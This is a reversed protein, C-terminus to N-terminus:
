LNIGEDIMQWDEVTLDFQVYGYETIPQNDDFDWDPFGPATLTNLALRFYQNRLVNYRFIEDRVVGNHNLYVNYYGAGAIYQRQRYPVEDVTLEVGGVTVGGNRVDDYFQQAIADSSFYYVTGNNVSVTWFDPAGPGPSGAAPNPQAEWVNNNFVAYDQPQFYALLTVCTANNTLAGPAYLFTNETTYQFLTINDRDPNVQIFPQDNYAPYLTNLAYNPDQFDPRQVYYFWNNIRRWAFEVSTELFNGQGQFVTNNYYVASKATLRRLSAPVPTANAQEPTPMIQAASVNLEDTFMVFRQGPVNALEEIPHSAAVTILNFRSTGIENRMPDNLNVGIYVWKDKVTTRIPENLTTFGTGPNTTFETPGFHLVTPSGTGDHNFMYVHISQIAREAPIGPDPTVTQRAEAGYPSIGRIKLTFYGQEGNDEGPGDKPDSDSCSAFAVAVLMTFLFKIAKM